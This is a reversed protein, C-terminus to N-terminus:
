FTHVMVKGRSFACTYPFSFKGYLTVHNFVIIFTFVGTVEAINTNDSNDDPPLKMHLLVTASESEPCPKFLLWKCATKKTVLVGYFLISFVPSLTNQISLNKLPSGAIFVDQTLQLLAPQHFFSSFYLHKQELQCNWSLHPHDQSYYGVFFSSTVFVKIVVDPLRTLSIFFSLWGSVQLLMSSMGPVTTTVSLFLIDSQTRWAWTLHGKGKLGLDCKRRISLSIDM